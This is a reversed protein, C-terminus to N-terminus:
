KEPRENEKDQKVAKLFGSPEESVDKLVQLIDERVKKTAKYHNKKEIIWLVFSMVGIMILFFSLMFLPHKIWFEFETCHIYDYLIDKM